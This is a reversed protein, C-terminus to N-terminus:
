PHHKSNPTYEATTTVISAKRDGTDAPQILRGRVFRFKREDKDWVCVAPLIVAGSRLAIMAPGSPTCADVGFFPVFVGEKPHANVDALIGLIGGERLHAIATM